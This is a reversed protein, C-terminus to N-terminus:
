LNVMGKVLKMIKTPNVRFTILYKGLNGKLEVNRFIAKKRTFCRVKSTSIDLEKRAIKFDCKFKTKGNKLTKSFM